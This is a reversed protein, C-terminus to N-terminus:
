TWLTIQSVEHNPHQYCQCFKTTAEYLSRNYNVLYSAYTFIRYLRLVDVDDGLECIVVHVVTCTYFKMLITDFTFNNM